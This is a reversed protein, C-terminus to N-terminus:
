PPAAAVHEKPITRSQIQIHAAMGLVCSSFAIVNNLQDCVITRTLADELTEEDVGLSAEVLLADRAIDIQKLVVGVTGAVGVSTVLIVEHRAM